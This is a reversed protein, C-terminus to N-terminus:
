NLKKGIYIYKNKEVYKFAGALGIQEFRKQIEHPYYFICKFGLIKKTVMFLKMLISKPDKEEIILKGDIKLVRYIERLVKKENEFSNFHNLFIIKDFLDERFPMHEINGDVISCNCNKVIASMHDEQANEFIIVDAGAKKLYKGYHSVDGVLLIKEGPYPQIFGMFNGINERGRCPCISKISQSCNSSIVREM